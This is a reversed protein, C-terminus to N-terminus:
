KEVAIVQGTLRLDLIETQSIDPNFELLFTRLYEMNRFFDGAYMKLAPKLGDMNIVTNEPSSIDISSIALYFDNDESCLLRLQEALLYLRDDTAPAFARCNKAGTIIPFNFSTPRNDFGTLYGHEDLVFFSGNSRVLALPKIDNLVIELKDPFGFNLDAKIVKKNTIISDIFKICSFNFINKGLPAALLDSESIIGEPVASIEKLIFADSIRIFIVAALLLITALLLLKYKRRIRLIM